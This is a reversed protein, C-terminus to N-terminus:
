EATAPETEPEPTEIGLIEHLKIIATDISEQNPYMVSLNQHPYTYTPAMGGAGDLNQNSISWSPMTELQNRFFATINDMTLNTEFTGDLSGLIDSYHSLLTSSKSIKDMILGIVQEQNEGRHRDGTSYAHRERAFALACRGYTYNYGPNFTCGKDTWCTFPYDVDSYINIGDVANVLNEVFNFNVRIYYNIDIGLLESITAKSLEIGGTSGAHTLKDNLAGEPTGALHVYYDRPIAVLLIKHETPNIAAVINVDSLSRSPLTGSRTDIGSLYVVFPDKTIDTTKAEEIKTIIDFTRIVRFRDKYIDNDALFAEYAGTNLAMIQDTNSLTSSFLEPLNTEFETDANFNTKIAETIKDADLTLDRYALITRGSLDSSENLESDKAVILSFNDTFENNGFNAFLFNLTDNIKLFGFVSIVTIFLSLIISIPKLILEKKKFLALFTILVALFIAIAIAIVTYKTPLINFRFINILLASLSLITIVALVIATIKLVKKPKTSKGLSQKGAKYTFINKM